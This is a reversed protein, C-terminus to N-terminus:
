LKLICFHVLIVLKSCLYKHFFTSYQHCPFEHEKPLAHQSAHSNRRWRSHIRLSLSTLPSNYKKTPFLLPPTLLLFTFGASIM